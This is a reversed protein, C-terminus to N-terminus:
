PPILAGKILKSSRVMPQTTTASALQSITLIPLFCLIATHIYVVNVVFSHTGTSVLKHSSKPGLFLLFVLLVSFVLLLSPTQM